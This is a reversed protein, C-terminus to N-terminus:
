REFGPCALVPQPPYKPFRADTAALRCLLFTSGRESHVLKV